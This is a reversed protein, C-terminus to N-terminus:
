TGPLNSIDGSDKIKELQRTQVMENKAITCNKDRDLLRFAPNPANAFEDRGLKGDNNTDFYNMGVTEFLRDQAVVGKYEEATLAGDANGDATQFLEGVYQKWEDCTVENDKNVDWTQAASVFLLENSSANSFMSAVGGGGGCGAVGAAIVSFCVLGSFGRRVLRVPKFKRMAAYTGIM